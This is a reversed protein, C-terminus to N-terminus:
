KIQLVGEALYGHLGRQGAQYMQRICPSVVAAIRAGSEAVPRRRGRAVAWKSVVTIQHQCVRNGTADDANPVDAARAGRCKAPEIQERGSMFETVIKSTPM